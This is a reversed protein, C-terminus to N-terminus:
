LYKGIIDEIEKIKVPKTLYEDAGILKMFYESSEHYGTVIVVKAKLKNAKIYKVVEMGTMEPMNHDLFVLDYRDPRLLELAAHGNYATDVSHGKRVLRDKLFDVFEKEDDVVLIIM